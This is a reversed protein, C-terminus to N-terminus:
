FSFQKSNVGCLFVFFNLERYAPRRGPQGMPWHVGRWAEGGSFARYAAVEQRASGWGGV